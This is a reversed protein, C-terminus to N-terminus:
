IIGDNAANPHAWNWWKGLGGNERGAIQDGQGNELDCM